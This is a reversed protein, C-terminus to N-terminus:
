ERVFKAEFVVTDQFISAPLAVAGLEILPGSNGSVGNNSEFIHLNGVVNDWLYIWGSPGKGGATLVNGVSKVDVDFPFATNTANPTSQPVGVAKLGELKTWDLPFGTGKIQDSPYHGQSITFTGRVIITRQTNDYGSPYAFPTITVTADAM